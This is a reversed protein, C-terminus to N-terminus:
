IYENLILVDIPFNEQYINNENHLQGNFNIKDHNQLITPVIFYNFLGTQTSSKLM